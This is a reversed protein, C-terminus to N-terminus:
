ELARAVSEVNCRFGANSSVPSSSMDSEGKTGKTQFQWDKDDLGRARPFEVAEKLDKLKAQSSM